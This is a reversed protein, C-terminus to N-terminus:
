KTGQKIKITKNSKLKNKCFDTEFDIENEHNQM